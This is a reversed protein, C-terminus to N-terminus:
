RAGRCAYRFREALEALLAEGDARDGQCAADLAAAFRRVLEHKERSDLVVFGNSARSRDDRAGDALADNRIVEFGAQWALRDVGFQRIYGAAQALAADEDTARVETRLLLDYVIPASM